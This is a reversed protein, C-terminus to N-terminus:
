KIRWARLGCKGDEVVSRVSVKGAGLANFGCSILSKLLMPRREVDVPVFFSDGVAMEAFPYKARRGRGGVYVAPIEVGKDIKFM